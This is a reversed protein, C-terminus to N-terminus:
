EPQCGEDDDDDLVCTSRWRMVAVSGTRLYRLVLESQVPFRPSKKQKAVQKCIGSRWNKKFRFGHVQLSVMLPDLSM